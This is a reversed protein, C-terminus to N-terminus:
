ALINVNSDIESGNAIGDEEGIADISNTKTNKGKQGNGSKDRNSGNKFFTTDENYINLSLNQIKINSDQLKNALDSLNSNLLNYAEKNSTSINAKMVGSDMTVKIVVEGLERPNIKVTLDKIDNTQMYKLTKIMDDNLADRNIVVNELEGVSGNNDVRMNNFQSMFNTARSVKDNDNSDSLLNKLFDEDGKSSKSSSKSSDDSTEVTKSLEEQVKDNLNKPTLKSDSLLNGTNKKNAKTDKLTDKLAAALQQQIKSLVDADSATNASSVNFTSGSSLQSDKTSIEMDKLTSAMEQQLKSLMADGNGTNSLVSSASESSIKGLLGNILKDKLQSEDSANVYSQPNVSIISKIQEEIKDKINSLDMNSSNGNMLLLLTSLLEDSPVKEKLDKLSKIQNLEEDSMGAKKLADKVEQPVPANAKSDSNSEVSNTQENNSDNTTTQQSAQSNNRQNNTQNL